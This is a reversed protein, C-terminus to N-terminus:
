MCLPIKSSKKGGERRYTVKHGPKFGLYIGGEGKQTAYNILLQKTLTFM